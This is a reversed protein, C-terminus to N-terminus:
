GSSLIGLLDECKWHDEDAGQPAAKVVGSFIPLPCCLSFIVGCHEGFGGLGSGFAGLLCRFTLSQSAKSGVGGQLRVREWVKLGRLRGGLVTAVGALGM